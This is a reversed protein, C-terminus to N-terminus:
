EEDEKSELEGYEFGFEAELKRVLALPLGVKGSEWRIYTQKSVGFIAGATTCTLGLEERATKLLQTRIKIAYPFAMRVM